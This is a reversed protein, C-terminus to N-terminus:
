VQGPVVTYQSPVLIVIHLFPVLLVLEGMTAPALQRIAKIYLGHAWTDM